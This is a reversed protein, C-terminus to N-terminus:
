PYVKTNGAKSHDLWFSGCLHVCVVFCNDCFILCYDVACHTLTLVINFFLECLVACHEKEIEREGGRERVVLFGGMIGLPM